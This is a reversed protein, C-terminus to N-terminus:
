FRLAKEYPNQKRRENYEEETIEVGQLLYQSNHHKVGPFHKARQLASLLNKAAIAFSIDRANGRGCHGVYCRILFYRM